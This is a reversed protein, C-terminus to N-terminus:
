DKIEVNFLEEFFDEVREGAKKQTLGAKLDKMRNWHYEDTYIVIEKEPILRQTEDKIESDTQDNQQPNLMVFAIVRDEFTAVQAQRVDKRKQLHQQVMLSEESSFIDQNEADEGIGREDSQYYKKNPSKEVDYPDSQNDDRNSIQMPEKNNNNDMQADNNNTCGIAIFMILFVSLMKYM